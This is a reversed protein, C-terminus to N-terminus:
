PISSENNEPFGSAQFAGGLFSVIAIGALAATEARLINRGMSVTHFGAKRFLAIEEDAFGGEPGFVLGVSGPANIFEADLSISQEQEWFLIKSAWGSADLRDSEVPPHIVMPQPRGSQKCAELMIRNWRELQRPSCARSSCYRTLLPQFVEVGMETAKQVLFDMKKMKLLAQCVVLHQSSPPITMTQSTIRVSVARKAVSELVGRYIRGSGDFLEVAAGPELRLVSVIHHSETESLTALNDAITEPDVLFRRM